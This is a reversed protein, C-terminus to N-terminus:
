LPLLDRLKAPHLSMKQFVVAADPLQFASSYCPSECNNQLNLHVLSSDDTHCKCDLAVDCISLEGTSRCKGLM